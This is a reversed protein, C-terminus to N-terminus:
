ILNTHLNSNRCSNVMTSDLQDDRSKTDPQLSYNYSHPWPPSLSSHCWVVLCWARGVPSRSLRPASCTPCTWRSLATSLPTLVTGLRVKAINHERGDYPDTCDTDRIHDEDVEQWGDNYWRRYWRMECDCVLPNGPGPIHTTHWTNHGSVTYTWTSSLTWYQSWWVTPSDRWSM